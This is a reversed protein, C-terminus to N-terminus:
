LEISDLTNASGKASHVLWLVVFVIISIVIFGIVILIAGGVSVSVAIALTSDDGDGDGGGNNSGALVGVDPDYQLKTTFKPFVWDICIYLGENRRDLTLTHNVIEEVTDVLAIVPVNIILANDTKSGEERKLKYTRVSNKTTPILSQSANFRGGAETNIYCISWPLIDTTNFLDYENAVREITLTFKVNSASLAYTIDSTLQVDIDNDPSYNTVITALAGPTLLAKYTYEFRGEGINTLASADWEAPFLIQQETGFSAYAISTEEIVTARRRKANDDAYIDRRVFGPFTGDFITVHGDNGNNPQVIAAARPVFAINNLEIPDIDLMPDLRLLTFTSDDQLLIRYIGEDDISAWLEIYSGSADTISRGQTLASDREAVFGPIIDTLNQGMRQTIVKDSDTCWVQLQAETLVYYCRRTDDYVIDAVEDDLFSHQIM